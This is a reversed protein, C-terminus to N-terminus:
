LLVFNAISKLTRKPVQSVLIKKESFNFFGEHVHLNKGIDMVKSLIIGKRKAIFTIPFLPNTLNIFPNYSLDYFYM